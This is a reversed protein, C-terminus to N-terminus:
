PPSEGAAYLVEQRDEQRREIWWELKGHPDTKPPAPWAAFHLRWERYDKRM